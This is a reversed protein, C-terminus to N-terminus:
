NYEIGLNPNQNEIEQKLEKVIKVADNINEQILFPITNVKAEYIPYNKNKCHNVFKDDDVASNNRGRNFQIKYNGSDQFDINISIPPNDDFTIIAGTGIYGKPFGDEEYRDSFVDRNDDYIEQKIKNMEELSKYEKRVRKRIQIDECLQITSEQDLIKLDNNECYKKFLIELESDGDRFFETGDYRRDNLLIHFNREHKSMDKETECSAILIPLLGMSMNTSNLQMLRDRAETGKAKGIKKDNPVQQEPDFRHFYKLFYINNDM